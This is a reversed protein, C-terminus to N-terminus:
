TGPVGALCGTGDIAPDFPDRAWMDRPGVPVVDIHGNLIVSRGKTQKPTHTGVVNIANSYDVCVPSFGPHYKIENVDIAWRDMGYGRAALAGHVMEQATHEQGRLSPHRVLDQLWAVQADFGADVSDSIERALGPDLTM